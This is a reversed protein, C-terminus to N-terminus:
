GFRGVGRTKRRNTPRERRDSPRHPTGPGRLHRRQPCPPRGLRSSGMGGAQPCGRRPRSSLPGGDIEVILRISSWSLDAEEGARRVNLEPLEFGAERLLEIALIEAGSRARQVPLGSYRTLAGAFRGAGRRGRNRAVYEVVAGLSTLRLRLAERLARAFGRDSIAPSAALDLLTRPVTTIPIGRLTETDGALTTSRFVLVGGHRRPGGSGHRTVTELDRAAVWFGRAAAASVRSLYTGPGTLTAGMWRGWDDDLVPPVAYVSEEVIV